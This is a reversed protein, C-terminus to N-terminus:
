REGRMWAVTAELQAPQHHVSTVRGIFDLGQTRDRVHAIDGLQVRPDPAATVSYTDTRRLSRLTMEQAVRRLKAVDTGLTASDFSGPVWGYPGGWKWPGDPMTWTASIATDKGEPTCSVKYGNFMNETDQQLTVGKLTGDHGDVWEVQWNGDTASWPASVHVVGNDDVWLRAPWGDVIDRVAALRDSEATFAPMTEDALDLSVPLMSLLQKVAKGRTFGASTTYPSWLTYRHPIELLGVGEVNLVEGNPVPRKALFWGLTVWETTRGHHIGARVQFRHGVAALPHGPATPRWEPLNPVQFSLAGPVDQDDADQVSWSGKVVPLTALRRGGLWSTVEMLARAGGQVAARFQASARRM